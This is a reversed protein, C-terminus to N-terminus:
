SRRRQEMRGSEDVPGTRDICCHVVAKALSASKSRRRVNSAKGDASRAPAAPASVKGERSMTKTTGQAGPPEFSMRARASCGNSRSCPTFRTTSFWTPAVPAIPRRRTAPEAASPYVSPIPVLEVMAYM